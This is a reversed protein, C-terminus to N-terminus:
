RQKFQTPHERELVSFREELEELGLSVSRWEV